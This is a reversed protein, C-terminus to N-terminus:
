PMLDAVPIKGVEVGDIVVSLVHGPMLVDMAGYGSPGPQSYVEIQGHILDIIWCLPIGARGYLGALKRDESLSSESVEVVLAIDAPEPSRRSYDRISGRVVCRDPEPKSALSPIRIPKATRIYWGPPIVRQLQEGCLDDATCHPDNQTLKAVLYGNILHLRDRLDFFGSEVMREYQELTLRYLPSPVWESDTPLEVPPTPAITSM